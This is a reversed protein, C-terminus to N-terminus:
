SLGASVTDPQRDMAEAPVRVGVSAYVSLISALYRDRSFDLAVRRRAARGMWALAADPMAQVGLLLDVLGQTDGPEFLWGSEGADILEPIGGIRAGIVPKGAAFSELVSLPANEYWQSPVVVARAGRVVDALRDGSCHGLLEVRGPSHGIMAELAPRMPGDGAVLLRVGAALAASVLTAVGKEAALRGVYLFYDGPRYAPVTGECDVWNPVHVFRERDWGWEVFKDIFFRSPVIIRDVHRYSGLARHLWAEAALVTGLALSNKACRQMVVSQFRGGRCRECVADDAYMKNNPCAIKLDHATMLTPVGAESLVPLISPSLHHYINHLHAVDPRYDQLLTRLKRRAEFSYVATAAKRLKELPSYDHGFEIEEVFHASWESPLNRPHHMAFYANRWGQSAMLEAHEFYVKDAGGRRYHYSNVNLLRPRDTAM